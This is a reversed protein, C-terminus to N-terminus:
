LREQALCPLLACWNDHIHPPTYELLVTRTLYLEELGAINERRVEGSGGRGGSGGSGGSGKM